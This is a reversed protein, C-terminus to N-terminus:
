ASHCAAEIEKLAEGLGQLQLEQREREGQDLGAGEEEEEAAAAEEEEEEGEEQQQQQQQQPPPTVHLREEIPKGRPTDTDGLLGGELPSYCHLRMGLMGACCLVACCLVACCLVACCLV